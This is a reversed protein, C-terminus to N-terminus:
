EDTTAEQAKAQARTIVRIPIVQETESSSPSNSHIVEVYHLNTKEKREPNSPCDQILHKIACDLCFRRIPLIISPKDKNNPCDRYWHNGGCGYCPGHVIPKFIKQGQPPMPKGMEGSAIFMLTNHDM